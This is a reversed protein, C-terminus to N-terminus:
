NMAASLMDITPCSKCTCTSGYMYMYMYVGHMVHGYQPIRSHLDPNFTQEYLVVMTQDLSLTRKTHVPRQPLKTVTGGHNTNYEQKPLVSKM